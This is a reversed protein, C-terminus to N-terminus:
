LHGTTYDASTLHILKAGAPLMNPLALCTIYKFHIASVYALGPIHTSICDGQATSVLSGAQGFSCLLWLPTAVIYRAVQM